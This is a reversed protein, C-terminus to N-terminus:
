VIINISRATVTGGGGDRRGTGWREGQVFLLIQGVGGALDASNVFQDNSSKSSKLGDVRQPLSRIETSVGESLMRQPHLTHRQQADGVLSLELKSRLFPLSQFCCHCM